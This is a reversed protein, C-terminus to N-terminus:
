NHTSWSELAGNRFHLQIFSTGSETWMTKVRYTGEGDSFTDWSTKGQYSFWVVYNAEKENMGVVLRGDRVGDLVDEPRQGRNKEAYTKAQGKWTLSCSFMAMIVTLVILGILYRKM